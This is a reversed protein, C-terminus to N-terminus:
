GGGYVKNVDQLAQCGMPKIDAGGVMQDATESLVLGAVTFGGPITARPPHGIVFSETGASLGNLPFEVKLLQFVM